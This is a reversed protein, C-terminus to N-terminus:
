PQDTLRRLADPKLVTIRKWGSSIWGKKRFHALTRIATPTTCNALEAIEERRIAIEKGISADLLNLIHAIRRQVTEGALSHLVQAQRLHDGVASYVVKSFEPFEDLLSRFLKAPIRYAESERLPVASVPYPKDDMVAIMGFLQGPGIIEMASQERRPSHKVAKLIGSKLAYVADPRNGEEFIPENKNYARLTLQKSLRDLTTEPLKKFASLRALFFDM